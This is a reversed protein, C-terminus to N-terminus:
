GQRVTAVFGVIEKRLTEAQKSLEASASLVESAAARSESSAHTVSVISSSIEATGTSAQQVNNSIERTAAEQQHIAEAITRSISDIRGIVDGISRIAGVAQSSVNQITVIKKSIEETARGTQNALNKVESAVVAFGKGAEGARAAEITANLALLNTQEAIDQILRVVDGIQTAADSLTSVTSDTRKVEEVAQNAVKTSHEIQRNIEGISSSLEEAASAVTQVSSSAEETAAAVASTQINTQDAMESLNKASSQLETAASAVVQVIHGVSQEFDDAMKVMLARRDLEVKKKQEEAEHRLRIKEIIGEKFAQVAKAMRGIEDGRNQAPVVIDVQEKQLCEMVEEMQVLPRLQFRIVGYIVGALVLGILLSLISVQQTVAAITAHQDEKSLGAFLMGILQGQANFIPDYAGLYAKGAVVTAGRYKKKEKFVADYAEDQALATGVARSGDEKLANTAVRVDGKFFTIAGRGNLRVLEDVFDNNDSLVFDGIMLKDDKIVYHEGHTELLRHVYNITSDLSKFTQTEMSKEVISLASTVVAFGFLATGLIALFSIKVSMSLQHIFRM